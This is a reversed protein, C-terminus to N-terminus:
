LNSVLAPSAAVLYMMAFNPWKGSGFTEWVQWWGQRYDCSSKRAMQRRLDLPSHHLTALLKMPCVSEVVADGDIRPSPPRRWHRRVLLSM